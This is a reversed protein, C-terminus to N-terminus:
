CGLRPRSAYSALAAKGQRWWNLQMLGWAILFSLAMLQFPPIQGGTQTTFLALAGWLGISISGISTAKGTVPTKWAPGPSKLHWHM